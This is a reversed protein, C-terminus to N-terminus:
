VSRREVPDRLAAPLWDEDRRPPGLVVPTGDYRLRVGPWIYARWCYALLSRQDLSPHIHPALEREHADRLLSWHLGPHMHHIGHFGNNFTFWNVLRGTFNRSHNYPHEGDCGDHQVFNIGMIGWAAYQHPILVFVLFKQWDLALAIGLFALYAVLELLFQRFWRPNRGAMAKAYRANDWFIPPVVVQAFLLQNLLNWRFRLKDTRMRDRTGQTYKHHSLNHGPVFMSVPHGYTLSLAIQFLRNLGRSRFVPAHVTNHTIVACFFSLLSLVVCLLVWAWWPPSTGYALAILVFYTGVFALSRLDARYRLM